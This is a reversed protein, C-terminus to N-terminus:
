AIFGWGTRWSLDYACFHKYTIKAEKIIKYGMYTYISIISDAFFFNLLDPMFLLTKANKLAVDNSLKSSLVQFLTNFWNFAIGTSNYIFEKSVKEFAKDYMGDTRTDRYHYPNSLLKDNKDLLGYDVGWTDIGICDIDKDGSNACALIGQKIEHFLRMVDWYFGGNVTVPDNSFRHKEELVIKDNEFTALIARGSSAGFDFALFKYTKKM